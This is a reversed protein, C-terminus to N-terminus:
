AREEQYLIHGCVPCELEIWYYEKDDTLEKSNIVMEKNCDPCKM